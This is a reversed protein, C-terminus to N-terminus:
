GRPWRSKRGGGQAAEALRRVEAAFGDVGGELGEALVLMEGPVLRACWLRPTRRAHHVAAPDNPEIRVNEMVSYATKVGALAIESRLGYQENVVRTPTLWVGGPRFLGVARLIPFGLFYAAPFAALVPWLWNEEIAGVVGMVLFWGGLMVLITTSVLTGPNASRPLFRAPEDEFTTDRGPLAPLRPRKALVLGVFSILVILGLVVFLLSWVLGFPEEHNRAVLGICIGM